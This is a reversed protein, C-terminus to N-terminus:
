FSWWAAIAASRDNIFLTTEQGIAVRLAEDFAPFLSGTRREKINRLLAVPRRFQRGPRRLACRRDHRKGAEGVGGAAAAQRPPSTSCTEDPISSWLFFSLRSALELDSIRYAKGPVAHPPDQEVRFLFNPSTLIRSLAVQVGTKFDGDRRGDRYFAMLTTVDAATVPRRYAQRALTSLITRACPEEQAATKPRCTLVKRLSPTDEGRDGADFPGSISVSDLAMTPTEDSALHGSVGPSRTLADEPRLFSRLFSVAVVHPGAKIPLRVELNGDANLAWSEWDSGGYIEGAFSEAATLGHNEGGVKFARVPKGDVRLDLTEAEQLGDVYDYLQRRLRVKILYTGDSPFIYRIAAGGRTGFPLGAGQEEQTSLKAAKFTEIVPGAPPLGLALRSVKRAVILYRDLLAPSVSLLSANNDLGQTDADDPPLLTATDVDLGLLDRVANAYESRNLRHLAQTRGPNPHLAAEQDLQDELSKVFADTTQLDPRPMGPPPMSGMRLKRVVKEWTDADPGVHNLDKNELVLGGVKRKDNHCTFCYKSLIAGDPHGAPLISASPSPAASAPGVIAAACVAACALLAAVPRAVRNQVSM